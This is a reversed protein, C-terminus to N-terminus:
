EATHSSPAPPSPEEAALMVRRLLGNLLAREEATLVGLLRHEESGVVAMARLWNARGEETLEVDVKRRDAASPTRRVFGRRELADLRGTVSAPALGLDAALASPTAAGGHGALDHLTEFEHRELDSAALFQERCRRLHLSIKDIRTVAGEIDADLGPLVPQWRAVHDDTWDRSKMTGITRRSGEAASM